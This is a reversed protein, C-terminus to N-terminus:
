LEVISVTLRGFPPFSLSAFNAGGGMELRAMIARDRLRPVGPPRWRLSASAVGSLRSRRNVSQGRTTYQSKSVLGPM